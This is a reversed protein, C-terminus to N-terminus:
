YWCENSGGIFLNPILDQLGGFGLMDCTCHVDSVEQCAKKKKSVYTASDKRDGVCVLCLPLKLILSAHNPLM